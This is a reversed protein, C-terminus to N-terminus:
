AVSFDPCPPGGIFGVIGNKVASEKMLSELESAYPQELFVSIDCNFYGYEPEPINIKRRSHKYIDMFPKHFENVFVIKYGASEFGLDLFGGGAFFSFVAPAAANNKCAGAKNKETKKIKNM